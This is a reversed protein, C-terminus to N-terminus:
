CETEVNQPELGPFKGLIAQQWDRRKTSFAHKRVAPPHVAVRDFVQKWTERVISMQEQRYIRMTHSAERFNAFEIKDLLDEWSDFYIIGPWQYFDAFKLWYQLARRNLVDNPDEPHALESHPPIM